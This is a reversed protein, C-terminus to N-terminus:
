STTSATRPPLKMDVGDFSDVLSDFNAERELGGNQLANFRLDLPSIRM